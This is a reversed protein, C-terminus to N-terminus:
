CLVLLHRVLFGLDDCIISVISLVATARHMVIPSCQLKLFLATDIGRSITGANRIQVTFMKQVFLSLLVSVTCVLRTSFFVLDDCIIAVISLVVTAKQMILPSCQLKLFLATGIGRSITGANRIQVTFMKQVFLSLLVSVTCVLRTSFFVLDDCIIAVISLVVTAKQMILPSCQLKLFLATDIGRSITGANRIQVTFMEHVRLSIASSVCYM